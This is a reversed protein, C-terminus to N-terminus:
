LKTLLIETPSIFEVKIQMGTEANIHLFWTGLLKLNGNGHFNKAYVAGKKSSGSAKLELGKLFGDSTNFNYINSHGLRLGDKNTINFMKAYKILIPLFGENRIKPRSSTYRLLGWRFHTKKLIAIYFSGAVPM